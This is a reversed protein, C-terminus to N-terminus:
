GCKRGCRRPSLSASAGAFHRISRGAKLDLIEIECGDGAEEVAVRQDDLEGIFASLYQALPM